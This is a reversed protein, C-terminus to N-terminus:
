RSRWSFHALKQHIKDHFDGSFIGYFENTWNKSQYDTVQPSIHGSGKRPYTSIKNYRQLTNKLM